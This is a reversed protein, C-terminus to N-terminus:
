QTLNANRSKIKSVTQIFREREDISIRKSGKQFLKEKSSKIAIKKDLNKRKAERKAAKAKAIEKRKKEILKRQINLILVKTTEPDTALKNNMRQHLIQASFKLDPDKELCQLTKVEPIMKSSETAKSFLSATVERANTNLTINGMVSSSQLFSDLIRSLKMKKYEKNEPLYSTKKVEEIFKQDFLREESMISSMMRAHEAESPKKQSKRLMLYRHKEEAAKQKKAINNLFTNIKQFCLTTPHAPPMLSM